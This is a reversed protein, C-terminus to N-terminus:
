FEDLQAQILEQEEPARSLKQARRLDAKAKTPEKLERWAIGRHLYVGSLSSDKPYTRIYMDWTHIASSYNGRNMRIMALNYLAQKKLDQDKESDSETLNQSKLFFEESKPYNQNQYYYVGLEFNAQLSDPSKKLRALLPKELDSNQYIRNADRVIFEESPLGSLKHLFNGHKDLFLLTPFGRVQYRAMFNPYEEGNLRVTIYQNLARTVSAKPFIETELTKCYNCWDAYLEVFIPKNEKKAKEISELISSQWQIGPTPPYPKEAWGPTTSLSAALAFTFFPRFWNRFTQRLPRFGNGTIRDRKPLNRISLDHAM